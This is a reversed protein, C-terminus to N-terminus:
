GSAVDKTEPVAGDLSRANIGAVDGERAMGCCVVWELCSVLSAGHVHETSKDRRRSATGVVRRHVNLCHLLGKQDGVAVHTGMLCPWPQPLRVRLTWRLKGPRLMCALASGTFPGIFLFYPCPFWSLENPRSELM